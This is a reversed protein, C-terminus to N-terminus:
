WSLKVQLKISATLWPPLRKDGIMKKGIMKKGIMKKGIMKKGIMKKGIMKKGIMEKTCDGIYFHDNKVQMIM